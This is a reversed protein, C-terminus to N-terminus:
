ISKLVKSVIDQSNPVPDISICLYRDNRNTLAITVLLVKGFSFLQYNLAGLDKEFQRNLDFAMKSAQFSSIPVSSKQHFHDGDLGGRSGNGKSGEVLQSFKIRPSEIDKRYQGVILAGNDQMVGAFRINKDVALVEICLQQLYDREEM